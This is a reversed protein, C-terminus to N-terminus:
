YRKKIQFDKEFAKFTQEVFNYMKEDNFIQFSEIRANNGANM